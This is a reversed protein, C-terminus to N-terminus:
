CTAKAPQATHGKPLLAPLPTLIRNRTSQITGYHYRFTGLHDLRRRLVIALGAPIIHQGDRVFTAALM